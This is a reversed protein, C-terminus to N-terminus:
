AKKIAVRGGVFFLLLYQVLPNEWNERVLFKPYWQWNSESYIHLSSQFLCGAQALEDSMHKNESRKKYM